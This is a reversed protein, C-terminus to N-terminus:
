VFLCLGFISIIFYISLSNAASYNKAIRQGALIYLTTVSSVTCGILATETEQFRILEYLGITLFFFNLSELCMMITILPKILKKLLTKRFTKEYFNFMRDFDSFKEFLSIGFHFTLFALILIKPIHPILQEMINKKLSCFLLKINM